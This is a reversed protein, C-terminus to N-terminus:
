CKLHLRTQKVKQYLVLVTVRAACARRPNIFGYTSVFYYQCVCVKAGTHIYSIKM